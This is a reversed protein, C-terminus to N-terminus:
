ADVGMAHASAKAILHTLLFEAKKHGPQTYLSFGSWMNVAIGNM